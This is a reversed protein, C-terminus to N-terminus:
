TPRRVRAPRRASPRAWRARRSRSRGRRGRPRRARRHASRASRSSQSCTSPSHFSTASPRAPARARTRRRAAHARAELRLLAAGPADHGADGVLLAALVLGLQPDPHGAPAHRGRRSRSCSFTVSTGSRFSYWRPRRPSSGPAPATRARRPAGSGAGCRAEHALLAERDRAARVRELDRDLVAERGVHVDLDVEHALRRRSSSAPPARGFAGARGANALPLRSRGTGGADRM